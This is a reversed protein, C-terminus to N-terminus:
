LVRRRQDVGAIVEGLIGIAESLKVSERSSWDMALHHPPLDDGALLELAGMSAQLKQYEEELLRHLGTLEMVSVEADKRASKRWSARGAAVAERLSRYTRVAGSKAPERRAEAVKLVEEAPATAARPDAEDGRGEEYAIATATADSSEADLLERKARDATTNVECRKRDAEILRDFTEAIKPIPILEPRPLRVHYDGYSMIQILTDNTTM